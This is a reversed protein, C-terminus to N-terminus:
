DVQEPTSAPVEPAPPASSPPQMSSPPETPLPCGVTRELQALRSALSAEIQATQTDYMLLERYGDTLQTFTARGVTYETTAIKLSQEARPIIRETLLARQQSLTNIEVLLRRLRGEISIQESQRLYASSAREAAAEQMGGRIKERWVPLTVGVSFSLMDIGDAVASMAGDRTM